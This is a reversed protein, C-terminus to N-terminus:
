QSIKYLIWGTDTDKAIPTLWPPPKQALLADWLTTRPLDGVLGSRGAGTCFLVDRAKTATVAAPASAGPVARWAARDALFGAIGHHYLSGVTNVQTQWLLQPTLNVDALVVQGAAVGLAPAFESLNCSPGPPTPLTHRLYALAPVYPVLLVLMMIAIRAAAARAPHNVFKASVNQLGIVMVVVAMAASFPTFRLFKVGLGCALALCFFGYWWRWGPRTLCLQLLVALGALGPWILAFSTPGPVAPQMEVIGAFFLKAQEPSMLGYPGRLINPFVSLWCALLLVVGAIGAARRLTVNRLAKLRWLLM